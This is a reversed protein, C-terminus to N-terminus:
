TRLGMSDRSEVLVELVGRGRALEATREPVNECLLPLGMADLVRCVDEHECRACKRTKVVARYKWKRGQVSRCQWLRIAREVTTRSCGIREILAAKDHRLDPDRELLDHIRGTYTETYQNPM